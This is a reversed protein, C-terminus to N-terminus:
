MKGLEEAEEELRRQYAEVEVALRKWAEISLVEPVVMYGLHTETAQPSYRALLSHFAGFAQVNGQV